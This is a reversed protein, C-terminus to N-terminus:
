YLDNAEHISTLTKIKKIIEQGKENTIFKASLIAHIILELETLEFGRKGVYYMNARERICIVDVGFEKLAEIDSYISKREASIDFKELEKIIQNVTIPHKQDTNEMLIKLIYLPKKKVNSNNAM